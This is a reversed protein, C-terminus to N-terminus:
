CAHHTTPSISQFKIIRRIEKAVQTMTPREEPNRSHCKSALRWAMSLKYQDELTIDAGMYNTAREIIFQDLQPMDEEELFAGCSALISDIDPKDGIMSPLRFYMIEEGSLIEILLSGFSYVDCKETARSTQFYEPALYGITGEVRLTEVYEEGPPISVSLSFDSLKAVYNGDLYINLPKVHRHIIPMSLGTHLYALADAVEKAVKLRCDWPLPQHHHDGFIHDSLLGNEPYEFVLIPYETELCCGLLMHINNHNNLQSAFVIDNIGNEIYKYYSKVLIPRGNSSGRYIKYSRYDECFLHSYHNTAIVLDQASFIPFPNYKGDCSHLLEELLMGGNRLMNREKEESGEESTARSRLKPISLSTGM